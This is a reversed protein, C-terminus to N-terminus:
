MSTVEKEPLITGWSESGGSDKFKKTQDEHEYEIPWEKKSKADNANYRQGGNADKWYPRIQIYLKDGGDISMRPKWNTIFSLLLTYRGSKSVNFPVPRPSLLVNGAADKITVRVGWSAIRSGNTVDVVAYYKYMSFDQPNIMSYGGTETGNADVYGETYNSWDYLPAGYIQNAERLSITPKGIELTIEDDTCFLVNDVLDDFDTSTPESGGKKLSYLYPILHVEVEDELALAETIFRYTVREDVKPRTCINIGLEEAGNKMRMDVYHDSAVPGLYMRMGPYYKNNSVLANIGGLDKLSFYSDANVWGDTIKCNGNKTLVIPSFDTSYNVLHETLFRFVEKDWLHIGFPAVHLQVDGYADVVFAFKGSPELETEKGNWFNLSGEAEAYAELNAGITTAFAAAIEFGVAARFSAGVKFNGNLSVNKVQSGGSGKIVEDIDKKKKNEVIYGTRTKDTVMHVSASFSGGMTLEPAVNATIIFAIPVPTVCLPIRITPNSWPKSKKPIWENLGIVRKKGSGRGFYKNLAVQNDYWLHTYQGIKSQSLESSPTKQLEYGGELGIDFEYWSDNYNYEYKADEDRECHAQTYNVIKLSVAVYPTGGSFFPANKMQETVADTITKLIDKTGKTAKVLPLIDRTDFCWNMLEDPYSDMTTTDQINARTIIGKKINNEMKLSDFTRWDTIVSDKLEYGYQALTASDLEEFQPTALKADLCYSLHKYVDEIDTRTTVVRLIGGQNEVSLVRHNLGYPLKHSIGTALKMGKKPQYNKPMTSSLYLISDAEVRILYEQLNDTMYIVSDNFQYTITGYESKVTVPEDFGKEEEPVVYEEMSLTCATLLTMALASIPLIALKKM